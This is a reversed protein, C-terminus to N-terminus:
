DGQAMREDIAEQVERTQQEATMGTYPHLGVANMARRIARRAEDDLNVRYQNMAYALHHQKDM